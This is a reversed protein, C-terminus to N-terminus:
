CVLISLSPSTSDFCSIAPCALGSPDWTWDVGGVLGQRGMVGVHLDCHYDKRFLKASFCVESLNGLSSVKFVNLAQFVKVFLHEQINFPERIFAFHFYDNSFSSM